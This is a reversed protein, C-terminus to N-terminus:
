REEDVWPGEFSRRHVIRYVDGLREGVCLDANPFPYIDKIVSTETRYVAPWKSLAWVPFWEEKFHDWWTLPYRYVIEKPPQAELIYAVMRYLVDYSLSDNLHQALVRGNVLKVVGAAIAQRSVKVQSSIAEGFPLQTYEVRSAVTARKKL